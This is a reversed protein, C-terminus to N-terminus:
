SRYDGNIKVYDYTLDCGWATAEERGEKTDVFITVEQQSLIKAAEEEQYNTGKGDKYVLITGGKSQFRLEAKDPDFEAGSYGMACLIRGWNADHGFIAAKTLSSSIIAKSLLVADKKTRANIVKAEILATAGEGDGAIAKALYVNVEHFAKKFKEFDKGRDCIKKNKAMGNALVIFSDNTSTDGDVSIMNYTDKVDEKVLEHLLEKDIEVDTTVFSLMTCMDPHIMGSGKCMGGITVMEGEIEVQIAIEKKKTDTTLIAQAALSGAEITDSLNDAMAEIGKELKEIPLEMGIVGTSALLVSISPVLLLSGAKEATRKCHEMGEEGTCANAIGANVVVAKVFPTGEILEMNWKVPAAKVKNSTFVGAAKCPMESYIMAMDTRDKYRIEANTSAALFGKPATIGGEIGNM